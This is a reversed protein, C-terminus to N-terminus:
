SFVHARRSVYSMEVRGACEVTITVTCETASADDSSHRPSRTSLFGQGAALFFWVQEDNYVPVLDAEGAVVNGGEM